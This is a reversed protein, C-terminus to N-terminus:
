NKGATIKAVQRVADLFNKKSKKPVLKYVDLLEQEEASLHSARLSSFSSQETEAFGPAAMKEPNLFVDLSIGLKQCLLMARELSIRDRAKEYKQYQQFSVGVHEAFDRQSSGQAQRLEMLTEAVQESLETAKGKKIPSKAKALM